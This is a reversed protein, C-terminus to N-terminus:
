GGGTQLKLKKDIRAFLDAELSQGYREAYTTKISELRFEREDETLDSMDLVAYIAAYDIGVVGFWGSDLAQHLRVTAANIESYTGDKILAALEANGNNLM